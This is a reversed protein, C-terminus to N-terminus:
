KSAELIFNLHFKKFKKNEGDKSVLDESSIMSVDSFYVSRGMVSLFQSIESESFSIGTADLAQEKSKLGIFWMKEPINTQILDLVKIYKLRVKSLGDLSAIQKEIVAKNEQQKKIEAVSAAARTNYEMLEQLKRNEENLEAQLKPINMSEQYYLGGIISFILVIKGFIAIPSDKAGNEDSLEFSDTEKKQPFLKAFFGGSANESSSGDGPGVAVEKLARLLNIKIM